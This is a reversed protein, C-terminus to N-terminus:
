LDNKVVNYHTELWELVGQEVDTLYTQRGLHELTTYAFRDLLGVERLRKIRKLLQPLQRQAELDDIPNLNESKVALTMDHVDVRVIFDKPEVTIAWCGNYKREKEVLGMLTFVQGAKCFDSAKVLPKEKLRQVIGQVIRGSPVKGGAEEVAGEWVLRQENPRLKTLPRVQRESTPLFNCGNTTVKLNDIVGAARILLDANQQSFGFRDRCYYDFRSHTSRFLKRAHLERLALAAQYFSREVKVELLHREKIEEETLEEVVEVAADLTDEAKSSESM